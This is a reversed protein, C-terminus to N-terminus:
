EFCWSLVLFLGLMIIVASGLTIAWINSQEVYEEAKFEAQGRIASICEFDKCPQFVELQKHQKLCYNNPLIREYPSNVLHECFYCHRYKKDASKLARRTIAFLVIDYITTVILGFLCYIFYITLIVLLIIIVWVEM